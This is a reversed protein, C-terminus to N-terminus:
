ARSFVINIKKHLSRQVSFRLMHQLSCRLSDYVSCVYSILILIHFIISMQLELVPSLEELSKGPANVQTRCNLLTEPIDLVQSRDVSLADAEMM